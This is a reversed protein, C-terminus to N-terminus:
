RWNSSPLGDTRYGGVNATGTRTRMERSRSGSPLPLSMSRLANPVGRRSGRGMQGRGLPPAVGCAGIPGSRMIRAASAPLPAATATPPPVPRGGRRAGIVRRRAAHMQYSFPRGKERGRPRRHTSQPYTQRVYTSVQCLINGTQYRKVAAHEKVARIWNAGM